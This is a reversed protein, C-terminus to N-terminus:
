AEPDKGDPQLPIEDYVDLYLRLLFKSAITKIEVMSAEQILRLFSEHLRDTERETRLATGILEVCWGNKNTELFSLGLYLGRWLSLQEAERLLKEVAQNRKYSFVRTSPSRPKKIRMKEAIEWFGADIKAWRKEEETQQSLKENEEAHADLYARFKEPDYDETFPNYENNM